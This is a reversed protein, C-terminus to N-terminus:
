VDEEKSSESPESPKTEEEPKDSPCDASTKCQEDSMLLACIIGFMATITKMDFSSREEKKSHNIGKIGSLMSVTCHESPRFNSMRIMGADGLGIDKIEEM